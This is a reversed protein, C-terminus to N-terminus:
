RRGKKFKIVAKLVIPYLILYLAVSLICWLGVAYIGIIAYQRLFGAPDTKFQTILIDPRLPVHGVDFIMSVVKIYIPIMIIQVPYMICNATQVVIQNLKFLFGAFISMLTTFGILPFIGILIGTVLGQSLKEPTAGKKLEDLVLSAIKKFM